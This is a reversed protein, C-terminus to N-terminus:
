KILSITETETQMLDAYQITRKLIVKQIDKNTLVQHEKSDIFDFKYVSGNSQIKKIQYYRKLMEDIIPQSFTPNVTLNSKLIISNETQKSSYSLYAPISPGGMVNPIEARVVLSDKTPVKIGYCGFYLQIDKSVAQEVTEKNNILRQIGLIQDRDKPSLATSSLKKLKKELSTKVEEWNELKKFEGNTHLVFNIKLGELMKTMNNAIISEENKLEITKYKWEGNYTSDTKSIIKFQSNYNTTTETVEGGKFKHKYKNIQLKVKKGVTFNPSVSISDQAFITSYFLLLALTFITKM